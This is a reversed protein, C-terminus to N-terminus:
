ISQVALIIFRKVKRLQTLFYKSKSLKSQLSRSMLLLTAIFLLVAPLYNLTFYFSLMTHLTKNAWKKLLFINKINFCKQMYLMDKQRETEQLKCLISFLMYTFM